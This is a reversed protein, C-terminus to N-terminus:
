GTGYKARAEHVKRIDSSFMGELNDQPPLGAKARAIEVKRRDSSFGPMEQLPHTVIEAAVSGSPTDATLQRVQDESLSGETGLLEVAALWREKYDPNKVTTARKVLDRCTWYMIGAGSAAGVILGAVLEIM